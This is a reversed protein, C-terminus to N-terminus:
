NAYSHFTSSCLLCVHFVTCSILVLPGALNFKSIRWDPRWNAKYITRSFVSVKQNFNIQMLYNLTKLLSGVSITRKVNDCKIRFMASKDFLFVKVKKEKPIHKKRIFLPSCQNKINFKSSYISFQLFYLDWSSETSKQRNGDPLSSIPENKIHKNISKSAYVFLFIKGNDVAIM